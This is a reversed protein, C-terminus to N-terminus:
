MGPVSAPKTDAVVCDSIKSLVEQGERQLGKSPSKSPWHSDSDYPDASPAFRSPITSDRNSSKVHICISGSRPRSWRTGDRACFTTTNAFAVEDGSASAADPRPENHLPHFHVKSEQEPAVRLLHLIQWNSTSFDVRCATYFLIYDTVVPKPRRRNLLSLYKRLHGNSPVCSPYIPLCAYNSLIHM